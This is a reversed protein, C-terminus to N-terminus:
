NFEFCSNQVVRLEVGLLLNLLTLSLINAQLDMISPERRIPAVSAPRYGDRDAGKSPNDNESTEYLIWFNVTM